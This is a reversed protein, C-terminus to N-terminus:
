EMEKEPQNNQIEAYDIIYDVISINLIDNAFVVLEEQKGVKMMAKALKKITEKDLDEKFKNAVLYIVKANQSKIAEFCLQKIDKNLKEREEVIEKVKKTIKEFKEFSKDM